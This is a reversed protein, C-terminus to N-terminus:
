LLSGDILILWTEDSHVMMEFHKLSEQKEKENECALLVKEKVEEITLLEIPEDKEEELIDAVTEVYYNIAKEEKTAGILAYYGFNNFEYFKM